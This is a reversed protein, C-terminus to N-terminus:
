SSAPGPKLVVKTTERRDLRSYAEPAEVLPLRCSIVTEPSLKGAQVLRLLRERHTFPEGTITLVSLNRLWTHGASEPFPEDVLIGVLALRAGKEALRWATKLAAANGAAEIVVDARAGGTLERLRRGPDGASADITTAGFREVERLRAPVLDIVYVGAPAFLQACAAALQGVPGAGVIAVVEGPQIAAKVCATYATALIDGIFLVQEDALANPVPFLTMDALPIRVYEAQGGALNNFFEGGGFMAFHPCKLYTRDVCASCRGCATFMSALYRQGPKVLRVGPGVSEVVGMFEHGLVVGPVLRPIKGHYLHLDSGCIAATTVRLIADDADQLVPMEVADIRVDEPGHWCLAKM